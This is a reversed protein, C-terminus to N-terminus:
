HPLTSNKYWGFFSLFVLLPKSIHFHQISHFSKSQSQMTPDQSHSSWRLASVLSFFHWFFRWKSWIISTLHHWTDRTLSQAPTTLSTVLPPINIGPAPVSITVCGSRCGCLYLVTIRNNIIYSQLFFYSLRILLYLSSGPKLNPNLLYICVNQDSQRFCFTWM